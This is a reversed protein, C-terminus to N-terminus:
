YVNTVLWNFNMVELCDLSLVVNSHRGRWTILIYKVCGLVYYRPFYLAVDVYSKGLTDFLHHFLGDVKLVYVTIVAKSAHIHM